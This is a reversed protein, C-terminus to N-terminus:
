SEKHPFIELIASKFSAWLQDTPARQHAMIKEIEIELFSNLQMWNTRNYLKIMRPVQYKKLLILSLDVLPIDHDSIGAIVSTRVIRSAINTIMLDLTNGCRTPETVLQKLEYQMLSESFARHLEVYPTNNKLEM